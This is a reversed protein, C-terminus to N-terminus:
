LLFAIHGEAGGEAAGVEGRGGEGLGLAAM